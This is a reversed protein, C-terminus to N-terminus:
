NYKQEISTFIEDFAYWKIVQYNPRSITLSWSTPIRNVSKRPIESTAVQWSADRTFKPKIVSAIQFLFGDNMYINIHTTQHGDRREVLKQRAVLKRADRIFSHNSKIVSAISFSFWRKHLHKHPHNSAWGEKRCTEILRQDTYSRVDKCTV